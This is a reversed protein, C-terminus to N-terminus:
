SAGRVRAILSLRHAGLLILAAGLIVGPIVAFRGAVLSELMRALIVVGCVIMLAALAGRFLLV